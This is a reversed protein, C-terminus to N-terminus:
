NPKVTLFKMLKVVYCLTDNNKKIKKMELVFPERQNLQCRYNIENLYIGVEFNFHVSNPRCFFIYFISPLLVSNIIFYVKSILNYQTIRFGYNIM